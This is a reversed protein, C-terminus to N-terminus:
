GKMRDLEDVSITERTRYITVILMLGVAAEVAAIAIVFLAIIQGDVVAFRRSFAVLSLNVGTLMIEICMFMVILNRRVLFGVVGIAFLLAGLILSGYEVVIM